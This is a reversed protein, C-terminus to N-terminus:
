IQDDYHKTERTLLDGNLLSVANANKAWDLSKM